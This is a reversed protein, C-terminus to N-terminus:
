DAPVPTLGAAKFEDVQSPYEGATQNMAEAMEETVLNIVFDEGSEINVLTDKKSGDAKRAIAVGMLVPKMSIPIYFSFPALNHVGDAGITSILAVPRPLVAGILLEHAKERNLGAPDIKM